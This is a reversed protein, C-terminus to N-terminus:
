EEMLWRIRRSRKGIDELKIRPDKERVKALRVLDERVKVEREFAKRAVRSPSIGFQIMKVRLDGPVLITVPVSLSAASRAM